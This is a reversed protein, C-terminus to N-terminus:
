KNYRPKRGRHSRQYAQIREQERELAIKESCPFSIAMRNFKKDESRHQQERQQPEKTTGIYVIRNGQRLTYLYTDRKARKRAM